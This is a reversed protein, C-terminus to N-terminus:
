ERNWVLGRGAWRGWQRGKPYNFFNGGCFVIYNKSHINNTIRQEANKVSRSRQVTNPIRRYGHKQVNLFM